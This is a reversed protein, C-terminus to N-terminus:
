CQRTLTSVIRLSYGYSSMVSSLYCNSALQASCSTDTEPTFPMADSDNLHKQLVNTQFRLIHYSKSFLQMLYAGGKGM